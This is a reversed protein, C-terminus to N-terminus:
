KLVLSVSSTYAYDIRVNAVYLNASASAPFILNLFYGYNQNDISISPIDVSQTRWTPYSEQTTFSAIETVTGVFSRAFYVFIGNSTNEDKFYLTIKTIKANHPLAVGTSFSGATQKDNFLNGGAFDRSSLDSTPVFDYASLMVFGPGGPVIGTGMLEGGDPIESGVEGGFQASVQPTTSAVLLVSIMLVVLWTQFGNRTSM